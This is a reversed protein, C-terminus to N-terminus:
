RFELTCYQVIEFLRLATAKFRNLGPKKKQKKQKMRGPSAESCRATNILFFRTCITFHSFNIHFFYDFLHIGQKIQKYSLPVWRCNESFIQESSSKSDLIKPVNTTFNRAQRGRRPSKSCRKSRIKVM